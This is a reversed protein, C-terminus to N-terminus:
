TGSGLVAHLTSWSLGQNFWSERAEQKQVSSSMGDDRGEHSRWESWQWHGFGGEEWGVARNLRGQSTSRLGWSM